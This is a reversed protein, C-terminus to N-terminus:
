IKENYKERIKILQKSIDDKIPNIGISNEQLKIIDNLNCLIYKM